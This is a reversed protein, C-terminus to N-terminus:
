RQVSIHDWKNLKSNVMNWAIFHIIKSELNGPYRKKKKEKEKLNINLSIYIVNSLHKKGKDKHELWTGRAEMWLPLSLDVYLYINHSHLSDLLLLKANVMVVWFRVLLQNFSINKTYECLCMTRKVPKKPKKKKGGLFHFFLIINNLWVSGDLKELLM